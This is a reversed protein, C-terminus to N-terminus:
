AYYIFIVLFSILSCFLAMFFVLCFICRIFWLYNMIIYLNAFGTQKKTSVRQESDHFYYWAFLFVWARTLQDVLILYMIPTTATPTTTMPDTLVWQEVVTPVNTIVPFLVGYYLCEFFYWGALSLLLLCQLTMTSWNKASGWTRYESPCKFAVNHPPPKALVMLVFAVPLQRTVHTPSIWQKSLWLVAVATTLPTFMLLGHLRQLVEERKWCQLAAMLILVATQLGTQYKLQLLHLVSSERCAADGLHELCFASPAGGVGDDAGEEVTTMIYASKIQLLRSIGMSLLLLIIFQAWTLTQMPSVGPKATSAASSGWAESKISKVSKKTGDNNNALKQSKSKKKNTPM